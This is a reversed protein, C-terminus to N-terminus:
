AGFVTFALVRKAEELVRRRGAEDPQEFAYALLRDGVEIALRLRFEFTETMEIDFAESLFSRVLDSVNGSGAYAERTPRSVYRGGGPAGYAVTCFDPNAELYAAFADIVAGLFATQDSPFALMMQGALAEQFLEMHRVAIADVIAQKDLFFRYLGGVSLGAEAAIQATTLAEVSVGRGLLAATAALVRQVTEHSRGQMPARRASGAAPQDPAPAARRSAPRSAM